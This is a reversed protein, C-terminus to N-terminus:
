REEETAIREALFEAPHLATRGTTRWLQQRCSVGAAVLVRARGAAPVLRDHAIARSLEPHTHGFAGAMGCCGAGSPGCAAGTLASLLGPSGPASLARAHCHEHVMVAEDGDRPAFAIGGLAAVQAELTTLAGAVAEADERDPLLRPIDDTFMSWCSPELTVIPIGARARAALSKVAAAATRRAHEVFGQSLLPRGCCGAAVVEVRAGAASLVGVAADGVGPELFRTFTDAWLAVRPGAGTPEPPRWRRV